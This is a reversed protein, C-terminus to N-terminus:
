GRYKKPSMNTMAKFLRSFYSLDNFGSEYCIDTISLKSYLLLRKAEAIRLHNIYDTLSTNTMRKFLSCFYEKTIGAKKALEELEITQRFNNHIYALSKSIAKASHSFPANKKESMLGKDFNRAITLMFDLLKAEIAMEFCEAKNTFEVLMENLLLKLKVGIDGVFRLRECGNNAFPQLWFLEVLRNSKSYHLPSINLMSPLFLVQIIEFKEDMFPEFGHSHGPKILILDGDAITQKADDIIHRCRGETVFFFEFFEHKHIEHSVSHRTTNIMFPFNRDRIWDSATYTNM